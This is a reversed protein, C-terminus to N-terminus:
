FEFDISFQMQRGMGAKNPTAFAPLPDLSLGFVPNLASVNTHNLVNFSEAVLDLKGHEGILFFKLIRLDFEAQRPTQLSNRALGLPRSSLPFAGNRNGDFGLLPNVPRGSGATLIPAVEINGFIDTALSHKEHKAGPEDEDGFPLDFTGSFVFRQRQDNASLAREGRLAYPNQAQQDFDSADDIAKSLTYNASFEIDNALRRRLALSLGNYTSHAQNQWQYIGDFQRATRGPPFVPRGVQQPAPQAIGLQIANSTTLLVPPPLNVNLTRPLRAGGAFLYTATLTLNKGLAHELAASAIESYSGGLRSSATFVSPALAPRPVKATGGLSTAFIQAAADGLAVQELGNVGDKEIARNAAELLYRDWFIGFGARAVWNPSPSFAMGLRPAFSDKDVQFQRPLHELDYRLGTDVTLQRTASFHDEAFAAFKDAAFDTRSNGFAQRYEDTAGSLFAALSPFIYIGGFGDGVHLNETIRDADAGLKLLHRGRQMSAVDNLEYHNERRRSNGAYPRGFQVLGAIDIGPGAQEATRLVARRTSVQWGLANIATSSPVSDLSGTLGQDETFSSGRGSPDVIGGTNFADGVERNNTLAYKLVLAHRNTIQHNLKVSAETEAREVPFLGPNLARVPLRPFDGSRLAQNVTDAVAPSILSSDDGRAHEQEAAVYYFTRNPVAAGGFAGGVRSKTLEPNTTENTLPERANLAGNQLFLFLDGHHVNAGTKTVVNITGGASGGSEASLGNNVVQFESITEPSLKTRVAGGYEDNNEVGDIYLSNSRSRLGAFTFGSDPAATGTAAANQPNSASLGPALLVFPLYSRNVVPSEEIRESGVTTAVTTQRVDIPGAQASVTIAQRVEATTLHVVIQGVRGVSIVIGSNVYQAFGPTVVRLEYPGPALGGAWFSGTPGSTLSRTQNTDPRRLTISAGGVANGAPDLVTGQLAGQSRSIQAVTGQTWFVCAVAFVAYWWRWRLGQFL